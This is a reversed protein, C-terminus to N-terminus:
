LWSKEGTALNITVKDTGRKNDSYPEGEIRYYVGRWKVRMASEIGMSVSNYRLTCRLKSLSNVAQAALRDKNSFPTVKARLKAYLRWTEIIEGTEPDQVESPAEVIVTHTLEGAMM